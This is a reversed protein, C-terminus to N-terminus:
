RKQSCIPQGSFPLDGILAILRASGVDARSPKVPPKQAGDGVRPISCAPRKAQWRRDRVDLPCVELQHHVGHLRRRRDSGRTDM